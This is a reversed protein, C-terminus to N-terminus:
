ILAAIEEEFIRCLSHQIELDILSGFGEGKKSTFAPSLVNGSIAISFDKFSISGDNDRDMSKFLLNISESQLVIHNQELFRGLSNRSVRDQNAVRSFLSALDFSPNDLLVSKTAEVKEEIEGVKDLFRALSLKTEPNAHQARSQFDSVFAM